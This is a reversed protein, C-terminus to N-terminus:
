QITLYGTGKDYKRYKVQVFGGKIQAMLQNSYFSFSPSPRVPEISEAFSTAM